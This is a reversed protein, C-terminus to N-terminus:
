FNCVYSVLCALKRSENLEEDLQKLCELTEVPYKTAISVPPNSEEPPSSHSRKVQIDRYERFERTLTALQVEVLRNQERHSKMAQDILRRFLDETFTASSGEGCSVPSNGRRVPSSNTSSNLSSASRAPSNALAVSRPVTANLQALSSIEQSSTDRGSIASSALARLPNGPCGYESAGALIQFKNFYLMLSLFHDGQTSAPLQTSSGDSSANSFRGAIVFFSFM